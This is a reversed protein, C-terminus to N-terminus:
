STHGDELAKIADVAAPVAIRGMGIRLRNTPTECLASAYLSAPLMLVGTEDVARVVFAEVGDDRPIRAHCAGAWPRKSSSRSLTTM